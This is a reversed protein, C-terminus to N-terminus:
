TYRYIFMQFHTLCTPLRSYCAYNCVFGDCIQGAQRIRCRNLTFERGSDINQHQSSLEWTLHTLRTQFSTCHVKGIKWYPRKDTWTNNLALGRTLAFRSKVLKQETQPTRHHAPVKAQTLWLWLTVAFDQLMFWIELFLSKSNSTLRENQSQSSM